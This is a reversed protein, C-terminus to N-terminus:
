VGSVIGQLRTVPNCSNLWASGFTLLFHAHWRVSKQCLRLRNTYTVFMVVLNWYSSSVVRKRSVLFKKILVPADKM